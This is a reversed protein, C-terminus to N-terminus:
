GGRNMGKLLLKWQSLHQILGISSQFGVDGSTSVTKLCVARYSKGRPDNKSFVDVQVVLLRVRAEGVELSSSGEREQWYDVRATYFFEKDLDGSLQIPYRVKYDVLLENMVNELHNMARHSTDIRYINKLGGSFIQMVIAM